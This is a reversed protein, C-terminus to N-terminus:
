ETAATLSAYLWGGLAGALSLALVGIGSRTAAIPTIQLIGTMIVLLAWVSLGGALVFVITRWEPWLRNLIGAVLWAILFTVAILIAYIPAFQTWDHWSVAIRQTFSIPVDLASLAALNLQTQLLSGLLVATVVAMAWALIPKLWRM